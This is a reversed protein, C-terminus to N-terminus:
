VHARGIQGFVVVRDGSLFMDHAWFNDFQLEGSQRLQEGTADLVHLKNEVLAVIRQGDTKIIDPEDVGAEQINTTSYQTESVSTSDTAAVEPSDRLIESEMVVPFYGGEVGWPGVMDLANAKVHRLFPDCSEFSTLASTLQIQSPSLAVSQDPGLANDRNDVGCANLLLSCTLATIIKRM